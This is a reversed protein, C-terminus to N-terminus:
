PQGQDQYGERCKEQPPVHVRFPLGTGRIQLVESKRQSEITCNVNRRHDGPLMDIPNRKDAVALSIRKKKCESIQNKQDEYSYPPKRHTKFTVYFEQELCCSSGRDHSSNPYDKRGNELGECNGGEIVRDAVWKEPQWEKPDETPSFQKRQSKESTRPFGPM